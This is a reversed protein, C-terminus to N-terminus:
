SRKARAVLVAADHEGVNAALADVAVKRVAALDLDSCPPLEMSEDVDAIVAALTTPTLYDCLQAFELM